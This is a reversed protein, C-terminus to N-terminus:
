KQIQRIKYLDEIQNEITQIRQDMIRMTKSVIELQQIMKDFTAAMETPLKSFPNVTPNLMMSSDNMM